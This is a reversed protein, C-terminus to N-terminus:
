KIQSEVVFIISNEGVSFPKISIINLIDKYYDRIQIENDYTRYHNPCMYNPVSFILYNKPLKQILDIDNELHEFTEISIFKFEKYKEFNINRIDKNLFTFPVKSQAMEIAVKSFDVGIYNRFGNDYLLQALHGPGCGLDLFKDEKYKKLKKMVYYWIKFYVLKTYYKKYKVSNTYILDYAEKEFNKNQM